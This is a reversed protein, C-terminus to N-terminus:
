SPDGLRAVRRCARCQRSGRYTYTNAADFPHGRLCHTRTAQAGRRVNEVQTVPELHLPNICNRVRCLHDLVLGEPIPGVFTEFSVRHAGFKRTGIRIRGYGNQNVQGMWLLCGNADYISKSVLRTRLPLRATAAAVIPSGSAPGATM